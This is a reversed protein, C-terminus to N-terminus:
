AAKLISGRPRRAETKLFFEVESRSPALEARSKLRKNLDVEYIQEVLYKFDGFFFPDGGFHSQETAVYERCAGWWMKAFHGFTEWVMERDLYNRRVLMGVDEFFTLIAQDMEDHPKGDLLQGAFLVRVDAMRISDFERRLELYLEIKRQEEATSQRIKLQEEATSLHGKVLQWTAWALALTVAVLAWTGVAVFIEAMEAIEFLSM